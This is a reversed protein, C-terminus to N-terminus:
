APETEAVVHHVPLDFTRAVRSPLDMGLWRSIGPPLTSVVIVDVERERVADRVAYLPNADGVEGTVACGLAGFRSRARELREAALAQAEGETYVWHDAPNTAPVVIHIDCDDDALQERPVEMLARGGLTQNAVVLVNRV